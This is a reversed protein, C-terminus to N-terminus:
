ICGNAIEWTRGDNGAIIEADINITGFDNVIVAIREGDTRDLIETLLTTKGAGLYGGIVTLEIMARGASRFQRGAVVTGLVTVERLEAPECDYPDRDLIAFDAFKDTELSGVLHDLKLMYA